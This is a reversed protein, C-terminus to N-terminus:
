QPRPGFEAKDDRGVAAIADMVATSITAYTRLRAPAECLSTVDLAPGFRVRAPPSGRWNAVMQGGVHNSLGAIWAPVVQPRALHILQGIGPQAPLLSWEDDSRNRRGEPHFGILRGPGSRCLSALHELAWRDFERTDGRMFFPPFMAFQSAVVNVVVGRVDQYFFRGRVPFQLGRMRDTRLCLTRAMVPLDFWSRHNAVVLLPRAPDTALVHELGRVHVARGAFLGVLRPGVACKFTSLWRGMRGVSTRWALRVAWREFPTLAALVDDPIPVGSDVPM